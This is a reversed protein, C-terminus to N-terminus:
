SQPGRPPTQGREVRDALNRLADSLSRMATISERRVQPVVADNVYTVAHRLEREIAEMADELCRSANGPRPVEQGGAPGSGTAQGSSPNSM